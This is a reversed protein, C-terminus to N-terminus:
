WAKTKKKMSMVEWGVINKDEQKNQVPWVIVLLLVGSLICILLNDKRLFVKKGAEWLNMGSKM